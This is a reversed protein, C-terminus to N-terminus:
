GYDIIAQADKVEYPQSDVEAEGGSDGFGRSDWTIVAYGNDLLDAVTGTATTTRSGGWGHTMLVVPVTAEASAGAPLFVTTAILTGDSSTVDHDFQVITSAARAGVPVFAVAALGIGAIAASARRSFRMAQQGGM